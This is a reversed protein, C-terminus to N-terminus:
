EKSNIVFSNIYSLQKDTETNEDNIKYHVKMEYTLYEKKVRKVIPEIIFEASARKSLRPDMEKIESFFLDEQLVAWERIEQDIKEINTIPITITSAFANGEKVEKELEIGIDIEKS